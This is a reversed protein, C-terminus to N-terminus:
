DIMREVKAIIRNSTPFFALKLALMFGALALLYVCGTVFWFLIQTTIAGELMAYRIITNTQIVPPANKLEVKKQDKLLLVPVVFSAVVASVGFVLGLIALIDVTKTFKPEERVFYLVTFLLIPGVILVACIIQIVSFTPRISQIEDRNLVRM